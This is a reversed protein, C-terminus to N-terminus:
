DLELPEPLRELKEPMWSDMYSLMAARTEEVVKKSLPDGELAAHSFGANALTVVMRLKDEFDRIRSVDFRDEYLRKIFRAMNETQHVSTWRMHHADEGGLALTRAVTNESFFKSFGDVVGNILDKWTKIERGSVLEMVEDRFDAFYRELLTGYITFRDPFFHYVGAPPVSARKAIAHATAAEWGEELIIEETAKLIKRVRAKSRDQVPKRVM